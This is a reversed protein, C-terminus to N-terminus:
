FKIDNFTKDIKPKMKELIELFVKSPFKRKKIKFNKPNKQNKSIILNIKKKIIENKKLVHNFKTLIRGEQRSGIILSYKNLVSVENVLSSSNGIVGCSFNVLSLYKQTGLFTFYNSNENKDSWNKIIKNLKSSGNDINSLTFVIKLKKFSELTKLFKKIMKIGYDKVNTEPHFTIILYNDKELDLSLIRNLDDLKFLKLKSINELSLNGIKFISKKNEGLQIVRKEYVKNKVFHYNSLKTISHRILDDTSGRTKEGGYIHIIPIRLIISLYALALMEFRDGFIIVADFRKKQLIKNTKEFLHKVFLTLNKRKLLNLNIKIKYDIKIKDRKIEQYTNGFSKSFHSGSVLLEFIIKKSKFAEKILYRQHSYDARSTTIFLFRKKFKAM